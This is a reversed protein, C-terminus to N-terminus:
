WEWALNKPCNRILPVHGELETHHITVSQTKPTVNPILIHGPLRVALCAAAIRRGYSAHAQPSDAESPPDGPDKTPDFLIEALSHKNATYVDNISIETMWFHDPLSPFLVAEIEKNTLTHGSPDEMCRLRQEYATKRILLTRFVPWRDSASVVERLVEIWYLPEIQRLTLFQPLLFSAFLEAYAAKMEVGKPVIGLVGICDFPKLSRGRPMSLAKIPMCFYMGYNDDHIIFHDAWSSSPLFRADVAGTYVNRAEADWIDTNLTHGIACIVHGAGQAAFLVLAPFGSEIISYVFKWYPDAIGSTPVWYRSYSYSYGHAEIVKELDTIPLGEPPLDTDYSGVRRHVHDIGLTANIDEYSVIEEAREPVNNLLWRLAAHACVHTLSNQQSFFSGSLSFRRTQVWGSYNRVGQVYHTPLAADLPSGSDAHLAPTTVIAEYVYRRCTGNPLELSVFVGYGFYEEDRVYPLLGQTVPGSFFSLRWAEFRKLPGCCRREVATAEADLEGQRVLNEIVVTRAHMKRMLSFIRHLPRKAGRGPWFRELFRFFSFPPDRPQYEAKLVPSFRDQM